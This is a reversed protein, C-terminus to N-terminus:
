KNKIIWKKIYQEKENNKDNIIWFYNLNLTRNRAADTRNYKQVLFESITKTIYHNIYACNCLKSLIIKDTTITGDCMYQIPMQNYIKPYHVSVNLFHLGLIGGKVISKGQWEYKHGKIRKKIDKYVPISLNREILDDDGYIEWNLRIVQAKTFKKDNLFDEINRWNKLVIFEDIDIYACWEIINFFNKYFNDYAKFQMLQKKHIDFVTVKDLFKEDIIEILFNKDNNDFIFIHNFGINLHYQIWDNIYLDENKAISCIVNNFEIDPYHEFFKEITNIQKQYKKNIIPSKKNLLFQNFQYYSFITNINLIINFIYLNLLKSSM